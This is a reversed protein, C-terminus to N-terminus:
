TKLSHFVVKFSTLFALDVNLQLFVVCLSDVKLIFNEEIVISYM